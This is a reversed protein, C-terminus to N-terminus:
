PGGRTQPHPSPAAAACCAARPAPPPPQHCPHPPRIKINPSFNKKKTRETSLSLQVCAGGEGVIKAGGKKQSQVPACERRPTHAAAHHQNHTHTYQHTYALPFSTKKRRKTAEGGVTTGGGEGVFLKGREGRSDMHRSYVIVFCVLCGWMACLSLFSPSRQFSSLPTNKKEQM